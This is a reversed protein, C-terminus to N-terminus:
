PAVKTPAPPPGQQANPGAGKKAWSDKGGEIYEKGDPATTLKSNDDYEVVKTGDGYTTTTWRKDVDAHREEVHGDAYKKTSLLWPGIGKASSMPYKTVTTGDPWEEVTTGDAKKTVKPKEVVV